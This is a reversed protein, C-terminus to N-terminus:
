FAEKFGIGRLQREAEDISGLSILLRSDSKRIVDGNGRVEVLALRGGWSGSWESVVLKVPDVVVPLIAPRAKMERKLGNRSFGVKALQTASFEM